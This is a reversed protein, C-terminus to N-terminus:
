ASRPKYARVSYHTHPDAAFFDRLRAIFRLEQEPFRQRILARDSHELFESLRQSVLQSIHIRSPLM